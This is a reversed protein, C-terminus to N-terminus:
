HGAAPPATDASVHTIPPLNDIVRETVYLTFDLTALGLAIVVLLVNLHAAMRDIRQVAAKFSSTRFPPRTQPSLRNMMEGEALMM